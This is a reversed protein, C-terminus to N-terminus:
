TDHYHNSSVSNEGQGNVPFYIVPIKLSNDDRGIYYDIILNVVLLFYRENDINHNDRRGIKMIELINEFVPDKTEIAQDFTKIM